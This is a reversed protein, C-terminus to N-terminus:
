IISLSAEFTPPTSYPLYPTLPHPFQRGECRFCVRHIYVSNRKKMRASYIVGDWNRGHAIAIAIAQAYGQGMNMDTDINMDMNMDM